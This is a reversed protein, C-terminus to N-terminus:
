EAAIELLTVIVLERLFEMQVFPAHRILYRASLVFYLFESDLSIASHRVPLNTGM